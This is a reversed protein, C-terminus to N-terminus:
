SSGLMSTQKNLVTRPLFRNTHPMAAVTTSHCHIDFYTNLRWLQKSGHMVSQQHRKDQWRWGIAGVSQTIAAAQQWSILEWVLNCAKCVMGGHCLSVMVCHFWSVTFGHCLSVMVCHFWSVTFHTSYKLTHNKIHLISSTRLKYNVPCLSHCYVVSARFDVLYFFIFLIAPATTLFSIIRAQFGTCLAIGALPVVYNHVPRRPIVIKLLHTCSGGAWTSIEAM